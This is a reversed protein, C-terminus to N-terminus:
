AIHPSLKADDRTRVRRVLAMSKNHRSVKRGESIRQQQNLWVNHADIFKNKDETMKNFKNILGSEVLDTYLLPNDPSQSEIPLQYEATVPIAKCRCGYEQGPHGGEPPKNWSFMKGDRVAHSPRVNLDGRTMWIYRGATNDTVM